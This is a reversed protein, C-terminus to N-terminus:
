EKEEQKNGKGGKEKKQEGAGAGAPKWDFGAAAKFDAKLALLVKVAEDVEAKEAKATNLARVKEGAAAVKADLEKAAGSLAPGEVKPPSAAKAPAKAPAAKSPAAPPKWDAGTAAKYEAKLALLTAVEPQIADKAAKATKLERIKDGQAVIKAEIEAGM